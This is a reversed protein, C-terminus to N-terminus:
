WPKRGVDKCEGSCGLPCEVIGCGWPNEGSACASPPRGKRSSTGLLVRLLQHGGPVMPKGKHALPSPFSAPAAGKHHVAVPVTQVQSAELLRPPQGYPEAQPLRHGDILPMGSNFPM